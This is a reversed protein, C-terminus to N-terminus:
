GSSGFGGDGRETTSLAEFGVKEYIDIVAPVIVLQAIRDYIGITYAGSSRNPNKYILSCMIEGRYDSDIVGVANALTIGWKTSLGSRPFILGAYGEPIEIHIGCSVLTPKAWMLITTKAAVLDLGAANYYARTPYCKEDEAYIKLKNM